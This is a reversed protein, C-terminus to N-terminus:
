PAIPKNLRELAFAGLAYGANAARRYFDIAADRHQSEEEAIGRLFLALPPAGEFNTVGSLPLFIGTYGLLEDNLAVSV